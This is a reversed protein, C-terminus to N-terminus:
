LTFTDWKTVMSEDDTSFKWYKLESYQRAKIRKEQQTKSISFYFKIIKVGEDQHKIEWPIVEQMFNNHQDESCYGM